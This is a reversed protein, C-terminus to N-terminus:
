FKKLGRLSFKSWIRFNSVIVFVQKQLQMLINQTHTATQAGTRKSNRRSSGLSKIILTNTTGLLELHFLTM